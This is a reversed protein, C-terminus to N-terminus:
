LPESCFTIYNTESEPMFSQSKAHVTLHSEYSCCVDPVNSTEVTRGSQTTQNNRAEAEAGGIVKSSIQNLPVLYDTTICHTSLNGVENESMSRTDNKRNDEIECYVHNPLDKAQILETSISYLRKTKALYTVVALLLMLLFVGTAIGVTLLTSANTNENSTSLGTSMLSSTRPLVDPDAVFNTTSSITTSPVNNIFSPNFCLFAMPRDCKGTFVKGPTKYVCKSYNPSIWGCHGEKHPHIEFALKNRVGNGNLWLFDSGNEKLGIIYYSQPCIHRPAMEIADRFKEETDLIALRGQDSSICRNDASTANLFESHYYLTGSNTEVISTQCVMKGSALLRTSVTVQEAKRLTYL